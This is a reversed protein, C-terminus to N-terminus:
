RLVMSFSVIFDGDRWGPIDPVAQNLRAELNLRANEECYWGIASMVEFERGNRDIVVVWYWSM